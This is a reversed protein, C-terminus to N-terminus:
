MRDILKEKWQLSVTRGKGQPGQSCVFQCRNLGMQM